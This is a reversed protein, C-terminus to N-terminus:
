DLVEGPLAGSSGNRSSGVLDEEALDRSVPYTPITDVLFFLFFLARKLIRGASWQPFKLTSTQKKIHLSLSRRPFFCNAEWREEM